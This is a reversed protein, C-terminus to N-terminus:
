AEEVRRVLTSRVVMITMALHGIITEDLHHAPARVERRLQIIRTDPLIPAVIQIVVLVTEIEMLRGMYLLLEILTSHPVRDLLVWLIIELLGVMSSVTGCVM